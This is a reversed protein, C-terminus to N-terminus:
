NQGPLYSSAAVGVPLLVIVACVVILARGGGPDKRRVYIGSGLVLLGVLAVVGYIIYVVLAIATVFM